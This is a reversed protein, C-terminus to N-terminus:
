DRCVVVKLHRQRLVQLMIYDFVTDCNIVTMIAWHLVTNLLLNVNSIYDDDDDDNNPM